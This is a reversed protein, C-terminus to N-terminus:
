NACAEIKGWCAVPWRSKKVLRARSVQVSKKPEVESKKGQLCVLEKRFCQRQIYKMVKIQASHLEEVSIPSPKGPVLVKATDEKWRYCERLLNSHYRIIWAM